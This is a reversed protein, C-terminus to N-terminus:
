AILLGQKHTLLCLFYADDNNKYTLNVMISMNTEVIKFFQEKLSEQLSM